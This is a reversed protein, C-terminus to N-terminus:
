KKYQRMDYYDFAPLAENNNGSDFFTANDWHSGEGWLTKCGSTVWAPEWYIVGNGGAKLVIETLDVMYKKQGEPSAPYGAILAKDNLINNAKDVNNMTFPYSTEVIMFPKKYTAILSDIAKPVEDFKYESWLPYYSIGIWDFDTVGNKDAESFWKLANEPQAIHLLVAVEKKTQKSAERVGAIARNFLFANRKWDINDKGKQGPQLIESNTENGVQVMEPLLDEKHLKLLTTLTYNYISDGLIQLDKIRAWAKPIEQHAPDAWTDSYHFDLLVEMKQGKARRISRKVDALGSYGNITPTHWLRLRVLNAGKQAFLAYPDTKKGHNQFHAGCDEIENVYSLDAGLYAKARKQCFGTVSFALALTLIIKKM